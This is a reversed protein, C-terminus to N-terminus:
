AKLAEVLPGAVAAQRLYKTATHVWLGDSDVRDTVPLVGSAAPLMWREVRPRGVVVDDRDWFNLWREVRDPTRPPQPVLRQLVAAGTALPSGLTMLLPVRGGYGRLAEFAVVTGLSHSVVILPRGPDTGHLVRERIRADLTRGGDDTERRRLYRGVQSLDGLLPVGSAWQACGRLGPAQLLTTLVGGLVRFLEGAGQEDDTGDGAGGGPLQARADAAVASTRRDGRESAQRGVEDVLAEVLAVMFAADQPEELADSGGGQAQDDTFLDSYDAFRTEALWGQTLGSVADAHGAARAGAALATLWDRREREADRLGGIGHVFM